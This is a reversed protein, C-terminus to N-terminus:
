SSAGFEKFLLKNVEKAQSMQLKEKTKKDYLRFL